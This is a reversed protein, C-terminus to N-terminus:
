KAEGKNVMIEKLDQFGKKNTAVIVEDEPLFQDHGGPFILQGDRLICIVLVEDKIPLDKLPINIMESSHSVKFVLVEVRGDAIRQFADLNSGESNETSRIFQVIKNAIIQHPTIISQLGMHDIIKLLDRRNVKTITKKVGKKAAFMSLFINEEDIGTLAILADYEEVHERLLLKQKTGDGLIIEAKPFEFALKDARNEDVELVKVRVHNRLLRPIVYNTVRGGGVIMVSNIRSPGKHILNCFDHVAKSEGTITIYDGVQLSTNGDAIMVRDDRIVVCVMIQGFRGAYDKLQVGVMPAEPGVEVEVMDIKGHGLIEVNLATPYMLMRAMSSAAEREPNIMLTIGIGEKLFDGQGSYEPNRVRAITYRAGIKKATIAAIINTEDSETVAIFVDCKNVGGEMQVDYTAGNGLVGGIDYNNMLEDLVEENSEIMMVEHHEEALIQCLTEGVKGGGLIVIDM